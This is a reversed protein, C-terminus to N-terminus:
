PTESFESMSESEESSEEDDDSDGDDDEDSEDAFPNEGEMNGGTYLPSAQADIGQEKGKLFVDYGKKGGVAALALCIAIGGFILLLVVAGAIGAVVETNVPTPPCDAEEDGNCVDCVFKAGPVPLVQCGAVASPFQAPAADIEAEAVCRVFHCADRALAQDCVVREYSCNTLSHCSDRTCSNNDNCWSSM